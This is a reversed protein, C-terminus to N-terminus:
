KVRKNRKKNGREISDGLAITSSRDEEKIHVEKGDPIDERSSATETDSTDPKKRKLILAPEQNDARRPSLIFM